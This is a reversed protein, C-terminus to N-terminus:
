VDGPLLYFSVNMPMSQMKTARSHMQRPSFFFYFHLFFNAGSQMQLTTYVTTLTLSYSLSHTLLFFTKEDRRFPSFIFNPFKKGSEPRNKNREKEKKKM